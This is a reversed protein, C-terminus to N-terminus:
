HSELDEWFTQGFIDQYAATGTRTYKLLTGWAHAFRGGTDELELSLQVVPDLVQRAAENLAFRGPEPEEFLGKSVLHGLVAQLADRDCGAARALDDIREIGADIHNAAHLTAAVHVCWPTCLDSLDWLNVAKGEPM